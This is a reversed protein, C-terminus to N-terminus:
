ASKDKVSAVLPLAPVRVVQKKTIFSFVRLIHHAFTPMTM